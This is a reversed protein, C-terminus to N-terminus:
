KTKYEEFSYSTEMVAWSLDDCINMNSSHLQAEVTQRIIQDMYQAKTSLSFRLV